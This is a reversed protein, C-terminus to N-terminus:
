KQSRIVGLGIDPTKLNGVIIKIVLLKASSLTYLEGAARDGKQVKHGRSRSRQGKSMINM